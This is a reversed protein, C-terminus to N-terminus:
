NGQPIHPRLERVLFWLQTGANFPRNKVVPCGPFNKTHKNFKIKMYSLSITNSTLFVHIFTTQVDYSSCKIETKSNWLYIVNLPYFASTSKRVIFFELVSKKTLLSKWEDMKSLRIASLWSSSFLSKTLLFWSLSFDPKFNLMWFSLDHCGTEDSCPLYIPFVHFCQCIQNKSAGFDSCVTVAAM